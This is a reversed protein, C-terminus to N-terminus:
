ARFVFLGFGLTERGGLEVYRRRGARIWSLFEPVGREDPHAAAYREGNLSWQWEYRDFDDTDATVAYLPVLRLVEGARIVGGYDTLDGEDAGLAELYEQTPPRRWYGEGYVVHGGPAVLAALQALTAPSGVSVVIDFKRESVYTRADAEVFDFRPARRRAEALLEPSLDVGVGACDRDAFRELVAGKGCGLDIVHSGNVVDLADFALGLKEDTIPNMLDMGAHAIRTWAAREM